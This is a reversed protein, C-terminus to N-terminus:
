NDPFDFPIGEEPLLDVLSPVLVEGNELYSPSVHV